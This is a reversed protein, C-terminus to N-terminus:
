FVAMCLTLLKTGKSIAIFLTAKSFLTYQSLVSYYAKTLVVTKRQPSGGKSWTIKPFTSILAGGVESHVFQCMFSAPAFTTDM